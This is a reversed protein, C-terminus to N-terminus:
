HDKPKKKRSMGEGGVQAKLDDAEAPMTYNENGKAVKEVRPAAHEMDLAPPEDEGVTTTNLKELKREYLEEENLPGSSFERQAQFAERRKRQEAIAKERAERMTRTREDEESGDMQVDKPAPAIQGTRVLRDGFDRELEIVFTKQNRFAGVRRDKFPAVNYTLGYNDTVRTPLDNPNVYKKKPKVSAAKQGEKTQPMEAM